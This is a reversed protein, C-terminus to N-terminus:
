EKQLEEVKMLYELAKKNNGLERYCYALNTMADINDPDLMLVKGEYIEIAKKFDKVQSHCVGTYFWAYADDEKLQTIREFYRLAEQHRKSKILIEGAYFLADLDDPLVDLSKLLQEFALSDDKLNYYAIGSWYYSRALGESTKYFKEIRGKMANLGADIGLKIKILEDLEDEKKGTWLKIIRHAVNKDIEPLNQFIIKADGEYKIKFYKTADKFKVLSSDYLKKDFFAKGILFYAEPNEPDINLAEAYAKNAMENNGLESYLGGELIYTNVDNPDLIKAFGLNKLAQDYKRDGTLALAANYFAQRYASINNKDRLLWNITKVSDIAIGDQFAKSADVWNALGIEAKALLVYLEYDNPAEKLGIFIQEKAKEYEQQEVYIRAANKPASPCGIFIFVLGLVVLKKM